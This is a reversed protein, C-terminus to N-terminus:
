FASAEYTSECLNYLLSGTKEPVRIQYKNSAGQVVPISINSVWNRTLVGEEKPSFILKFYSNSFWQGLSSHHM